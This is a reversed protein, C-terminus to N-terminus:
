GAHKEAEVLCSSLWRSLADPSILIRGRKAKGGIRFHSILRQDCLQYILSDSCGVREAAEKPTLMPKTSEM